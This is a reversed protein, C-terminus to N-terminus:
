EPISTLVEKLKQDKLAVQDPTFTRSAREGRLCTVVSRILTFSIKRRIGSIVDSKRCNQKVSIKEALKSLFISCERSTGGTAGFILPTFTGREIQQIRENYSRKKQKELATFTAAITRERYSLAMLNSVKVDFFARQFRTWFGNCSVDARAENGKIASPPLDESEGTAEILAPEVKVDHCVERMMNALADRINNHRQIIYGGLHCSLAHEITFNAQCACKLPLRKMQWGYRMYIADFFEQKNLVFHEEKLPLTTLWSSAGPSAAIELAKRETSTLTPLIERHTQEHHDQREKKRRRILRQSSESDVPEESQDIVRSRLQGTAEHSTEYQFKAEEKVNIM